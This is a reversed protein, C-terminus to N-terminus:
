RITQRTFRYTTIGTVGTEPTANLHLNGSHISAGISVLPNATTHM